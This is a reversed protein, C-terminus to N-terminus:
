PETSFVLESGTLAFYLNQLEHINEGIRLFWPYCMSLNFQTSKIIYSSVLFRAYYFEKQKIIFEIYSDINVKLYYNRERKAMGKPSRGLVNMKLINEKTIPIPKYLKENIPLMEIKVTKGTKSDIVYNGIRLENSKLFKTKM